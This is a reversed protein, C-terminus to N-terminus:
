FYFGGELSCFLLIKLFRPQVESARTESKAGHRVSLVVMLLMSVMLLLHLSSCRTFHFVYILFSEQFRSFFPLLLTM